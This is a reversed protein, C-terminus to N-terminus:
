AQCLLQTVGPVILSHTPLAKLEKSLYTKYISNNNFSNNFSLGPKLQHTEPPLPHAPVQREAEGVAERCGADRPQQQSKVKVLLEGEGSKLSSRDGSFSSTPCSIESSCISTAIKTSLVPNLAHYSPKKRLKSQVCM